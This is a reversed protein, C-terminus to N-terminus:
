KEIRKNGLTVEKKKRRGGERITSFKPSTKSLYRM